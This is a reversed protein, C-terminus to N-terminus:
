SYGASNMVDAKPHDPRREKREKEREREKRERKGKRKEREGREKEPTAVWNLSPFLLCTSCILGSSVKLPPIWYGPVGNGLCSM